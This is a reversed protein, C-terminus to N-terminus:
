APGRLAAVLRSVGLEVPGDNVVTIRRLGDPPDPARRLLRARIAEETERGRRALRAALIEPPATVEVVCSAAVRKAADDLIARSVNAVVHRGEALPEAYGLPIGYHLGHASWFLLFDGRDRRRLFEQETAEEHIEGGSDAPRTIVRTAFVYGPDGDLARRAGDLLTDKGAGSPGVVLFLTGVNM